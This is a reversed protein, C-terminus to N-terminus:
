GTIQIFQYSIGNTSSPDTFCVLRDRRHVIEGSPGDGALFAFEYGRAKLNDYVAQIDDVQIAIHDIRASGAGLKMPRAEHDEDLRVLEIQADGWQLFRAALTLDPRDFDPRDVTRVIELGMVGTLFDVAGDLRDVYIGVHHIRGVDIGSEKLSKTQTEAM